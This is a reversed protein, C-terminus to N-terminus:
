GRRTGPTTAPTPEDDDDDDDAPREKTLAIKPAPGIADLRASRERQVAIAAWHQEPDRGQEMLYEDQTLLEGNVLVSTANAHKVEDAHRHGDYYWTHEPLDDPNLDRLEPYEAAAEEAWWAFWEDLVDDNTDARDVDIAEYYTQHDLRGSAYNYGSSDGRAKNMPMHDARAAENLLADRFEKYTAVPQEAKFQSMKWGRPVSTMLGKDIEVSDFPDLEDVIPDGDDDFANASTELIAAFDAATEAAQLVALTWRRMQAYLNLQSATEPVGRLHGPRDEKKWHVVYEAPIEEAELSWAAFLDGPHRKLMKYSIPLENADFHIGGVHNPRDFGSPDEFYDCEVPRIWAKVRDRSRPNTTKLYFAEGDIGRAVRGLRLKKAAKNVRLWKRFRTEVLRDYGADGTTIQIRPGTGVLDHSLTQMIGRCFANNAYEYRSRERLTKRVGINNAAASSLADANRWHRANDQNTQAADYTARLRLARRQKASSRLPRGHHDVLQM